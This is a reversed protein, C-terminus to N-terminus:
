IKIANSCSKVAEQYDNKMFAIYARKCFAKASGRSAARELWLKAEHSNKETGIGFHYSESVYYMAEENGKQAQTLLDQFQDQYPLPNHTKSFIEPSVPSSSSSCASSFVILCFLFSIKIILILSNM